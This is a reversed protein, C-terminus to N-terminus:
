CGNISLDVHWCCTLVLWINLGTFMCLYLVTFVIHAEQIMHLIFDNCVEICVPKGEVVVCIQGLGVRAMHGM